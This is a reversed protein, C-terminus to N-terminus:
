VDRRAFLASSAALLLAAFGFCVALGTLFQGAHPSLIYRDYFNPFIYLIARPSTNIEVPVSPDEPLKGHDGVWAVFYVLWWLFFIGATSLLALIPIRMLSSILVSVACWVGLIPMSALWFKFGWSVIQGIPAEGRASCVVWILAHMGLAVVACTAWLGLWKGLIYSSRRSRITWYRVTKYQREASVADFGLLLVVAPMLILSVAFLFFLLGPAEAVHKATDGDMFWWGLFLTKVTQLQEPTVQKAAMAKQRVDDSQAFLLALGGGGAVTLATLLIGKLSRFSKRLERQVMFRTEAFPNV